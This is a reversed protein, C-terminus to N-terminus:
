FPNLFDNLGESDSELPQHRRSHSSLGGDNEPLPDKVTNRSKIKSSCVPAGRPPDLLEEVSRM